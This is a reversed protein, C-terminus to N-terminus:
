GALGGSGGDSKERFFKKLDGVLGGIEGALEVLGRGTFLAFGLFVLLILETDGM